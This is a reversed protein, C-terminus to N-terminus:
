GPQPFLRSTVRSRVTLLTGANAVAALLSLILFRVRDCDVRLEDLLFYLFLLIEIGYTIDSLFSWLCRVKSVFIMTGPVRDHEDV